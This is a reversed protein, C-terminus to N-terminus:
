AKGLLCLICGSKAHRLSHGSSVQMQAWAYLYETRVYELREAAMPSAGERDKTRRGWGGLGQQSPPSAAASIGGMGAGAGGLSHDDLQQLLALTHMHGAGAPAGALEQLVSGLAM